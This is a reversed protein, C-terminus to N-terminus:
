CSSIPIGLACRRPTSTRPSTSACSIRAQSSRRSTPMTSTVVCRASAQTSTNSCRATPARSTPASRRAPDGGEPEVKVVEAGADVFLKTAYPGAIDTTFDIVRLHALVDM